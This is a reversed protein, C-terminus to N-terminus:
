EDPARLENQNFTGQTLGVPKGLTLTRLTCKPPNKTPATRVTAPMITRTKSITSFYIFLSFNENASSRSAYSLVELKVFQSVLSVDDTFCVEIAGGTIHHHIRLVANVGHWKHKM